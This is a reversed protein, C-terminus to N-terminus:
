AQAGQTCVWTCMRHGRGHVEGAVAKPELDLNWWAGGQRHSYGAQERPAQQEARRSSCAWRWASCAVASWRYSHCLDFALM